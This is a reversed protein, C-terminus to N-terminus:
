MMGVFKEGACNASRERNNKVVSHTVRSRGLQMSSQDAVVDAPVILRHSKSGWM